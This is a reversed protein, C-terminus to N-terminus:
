TIRIPMIPTTKHVSACNILIDDKEGEQSSGTEGRKKTKKPRMEVGDDHQRARVEVRSRLQGPLEVVGM